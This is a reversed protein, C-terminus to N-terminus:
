KNPSTLLGTSTLVSESIRFRLSTVGYRFPVVREGSNSLPARANLSKQKASIVCTLKDHVNGSQDNLKAFRSFHLHHDVRVFFIM